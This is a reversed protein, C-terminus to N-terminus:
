MYRFAGTSQEIMDLNYGISTGDDLDADRAETLTIHRGDEDLQLDDLKGLVAGVRGGIDNLSGSLRRMDVSSFDEARSALTEAVRRVIGDWNIM